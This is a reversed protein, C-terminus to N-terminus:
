PTRDEKKQLLKRRCFPGHVNKPLRKVVGVTLDRVNKAEFLGISALKRAASPLTYGISLVNGYIRCFLPTKQGREDSGGLLASERFDLRIQYAAGVTPNFLAFSRQPSSRRKSLMDRDRAKM